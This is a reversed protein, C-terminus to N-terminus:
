MERPLCDWQVGMNLQRVPDLHAATVHGVYIVHSCLAGAVVPFCPLAVRGVYTNLEKWWRITVHGVQM